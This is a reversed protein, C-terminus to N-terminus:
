RGWSITFILILFIVVATLLYVRFNKQSFIEGKISILFGIFLYIFIMLLFSRSLPNILWFSLALYLELIYLIFFILIQFFNNKDEILKKGLILFSAGAVIALAAMTIAPHLNYTFLVGYFAYFNVFNIFLLLFLEGIDWFIIFLAVLGLVVVAWQILPLTAFLFFSACGWILLVLLVARSAIKDIKARLM